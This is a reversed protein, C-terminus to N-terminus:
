AVEKEYEERTMLAYYVVGNVTVNKYMMDISQAYTYGVKGDPLLKTSTVYVCIRKHLEDYFLNFGRDMSASADRLKEFAEMLEKPM